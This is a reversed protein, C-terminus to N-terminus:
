LSLHFEFTADAWLPNKECMHQAPDETNMQNCKCPNEIVYVFNVGATGFTSWSSMPECPAVSKTLFPHKLHGHSPQGEYMIIGAYEDVCSNTPLPAQALVLCKCPTKIPFGFRPIQLPITNLPACFFAVGTNLSSGQFRQCASSTM